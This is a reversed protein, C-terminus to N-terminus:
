FRLLLIRSVVSQGLLLAHYLKYLLPVVQSLIDEIFVFLDLHKELYTDPSFSCCFVLSRTLWTRTTLFQHYSNLGLPILIRLTTFLVWQPNSINRKQKKVITFKIFNHCCIRNKHNINKCNSVFSRILLIYLYQNTYFLSDVTDVCFHSKVILLSVVITCNPFLDGSIIM